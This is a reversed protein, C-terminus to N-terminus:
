SIVVNTNEKVAKLKFVEWVAHTDSVVDWTVKLMRVADGGLKAGKAEM